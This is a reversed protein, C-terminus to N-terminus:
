STPLAVPTSTRWDASSGAGGLGVAAVTRARWGAWRLAGYQLAIIGLGFSLIVAYYWVAVAQLWFIGLFAILYRVRQEELFRVLTYVGLPIGFAMEMQFEVHYAIRPPSLTFVAAAVFAAPHQRTVWFAVAYMSWGSLAWFLLLTVKYALVPNDTLAFLPGAVLAPTLLPEAFTLSNGVPYFATGHLLQSPQTLLNRFVTLMVWSFLRHDTDDLPFATLSRMMPWTCLTVLGLFLAVVGVHARPKM